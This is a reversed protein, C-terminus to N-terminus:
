GNRRPINPLQFVEIGEEDLSKTEEATAEGYIGRKKAEGYHIRRAEEAFESGVNDCNAEVHDRIKHAADVIQKAVEEARVEHKSRSSSKKSAVNPAMPAKSIEVDGCTPCNIDGAARQEDYTGSDRFWAEFEHGTSCKLTYSIM